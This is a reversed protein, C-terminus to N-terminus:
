RRRPQRDARDHWRRSEHLVIAILSLYVLISATAFAMVTQEAQELLLAGAMLAAVRLATSVAEFGLFRGQLALAPVAVTCPRSVFVSYEALALWRAFEGATRWQEGFVLAFLTPGFCFVVAFPVLGVLALAATAKSLMATIPEHNHVAASIRPYYVDAVSKGILQTPVNLAQKCLAFFGAAVPGFFAALVLTPLNQSVANILIQPARFLPFDHYQLALDRIGLPLAEAAPQAPQASRSRQLGWTLMLTHLLPGLATSLLLAAPTAHLLGVGIRLGNHLLSHQVAVGATLRYRQKRILWQQTIELAAGALMVLPLLMMFPAIQAVGMRAALTDGFLAIFAASLLAFFTAVLLSLRVLGRADSDRKPLVIAVPYTLAAIPILMFALSMFVGLVGYAQPGYIRTIVPMLALTIVQAGATGSAVTAINRLVPSRLGGRLAMGFRMRATVPAIAKPEIVDM